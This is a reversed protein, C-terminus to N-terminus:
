RASDDDQGNGSHEPEKAVAEIQKPPELFRELDLGRRKIEARIADLDGFSGRIVHQPDVRPQMPIIKALMACFATPHNIGVWKLYGVLGDIGTAEHTMRAHREGDEDIVTEAIPRLEGLAEGAMFLCEQLIRNKLNKSGKQRGAGEVRQGKKFTMTFEL